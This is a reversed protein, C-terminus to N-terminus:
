VDYNPLLSKYLTRVIKGGALLSAANGVHGAPLNRVSPHGVLIGISPDVSQALRDVARDCAAAFGERLLLDKPPYGSIALESVVLLEADAERAREASRRILETNGALDGVTPNLQAIAIKM